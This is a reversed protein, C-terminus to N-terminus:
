RGGAWRTTRGGGGRAEECGGGEGDGSGGGLHGSSLVLILTVLESTDGDYAPVFTLGLFAPLLTLPSTGDDLHALQADFDRFLVLEGGNGLLKADTTANTDLLTGELGNLDDVEGFVEFSGGGM